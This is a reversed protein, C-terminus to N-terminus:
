LQVVHGEIIGWYVQDADDEGSRAFAIFGRVTYDEGFTVDVKGKIIPIGIDFKGHAIKMINLPNRRAFERDLAVVVRGTTANAYVSAANSGAQIVHAAGGHFVTLRTNSSFWLSGLADSAVPNDDTVLAIDLPHIGGPQTELPNACRTVYLFGGANFHGSPTKGKITVRYKKGLHIRKSDALPGATQVASELLWAQARAPTSWISSAPSSATQAQTTPAQTTPAQTTQQSLTNPAGRSLVTDVLREKSKDPLTTWM